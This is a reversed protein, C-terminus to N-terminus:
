VEFGMDNRDSDQGRSIRYGIREWAYLWELSSIWSLMAFGLVVETRSKIKMPLLVALLVVWNPFFPPFTCFITQGLLLIRLTM